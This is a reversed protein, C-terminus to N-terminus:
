LRRLRRLIRGGRIRFGVFFRNRGYRAINFGQRIPEAYYSGDRHSGPGCSDGGAGQLIKITKFFGCIYLVTVPLKDGIEPLQRLRGLCPDIVKHLPASLKEQLTPDRTSPKEM